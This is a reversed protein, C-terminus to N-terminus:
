RGEIGDRLSLVKAATLCLQDEAEQCQRELESRPVRKKVRPEKIWSQVSKLFESMANQVEDRDLGSLDPPHPASVMRGQSAAEDFPPLGQEAYEEGAIQQSIQGLLLRAQGLHDELATVLEVLNEKM